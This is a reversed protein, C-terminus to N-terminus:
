FARPKTAPDQGRVCKGTAGTKVDSFGNRSNLYTLDYRGTSRDIEVIHTLKWDPHESSLLTTYSFSIKYPSVSITCAGDIPRLDGCPSIWRGSAWRYASNGEVVFTESYPHSPNSAYTVICDIYTATQAIAPRAGACAALATLAVRRILRTTRM